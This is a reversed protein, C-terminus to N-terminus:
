KKLDVEGIEFSWKLGKAIVFTWKDNIESIESVEVNSFAVMRKEVFLSAELFYNYEYDDEINYKIVDQFELIIKKIGWLYKIELILNNQKENYKYNSICGDDFQGSFNLLMKADDNDEVYYIEQDANLYSNLLIMTGKDFVEKEGNKIRKIINSNNVFLPNGFLSGKEVWDDDAKSDMVLVQPEICKSDFYESVIELDYQDNFICLENDIPNKHYIFAFAVTIYYTGNPRRVLVRM